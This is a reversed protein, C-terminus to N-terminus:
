QAYPTRTDPFVKAYQGVVLVPKLSEQVIEGIQASSLAHFREFAFQRRINLPAQGISRLEPETGLKLFREPHSSLYPFFGKDVIDEFIITAAPEPYGALVRLLTGHKERAVELERTVAIAEQHWYRELPIDGLVARCTAQAALHELTKRRLDDEHVTFAEDFTPYAAFDQALYPNVTCQDWKWQFTQRREADSRVKLVIGSETSYGSITLDRGSGSRAASQEYQTINEILPEVVVLPTEVVRGWIKTRYTQQGRRIGIEICPYEGRSTPCLGDQLFLDGLASRYQEHLLNMGREVEQPPLPETSTLIKNYYGYTKWKLDALDKRKEDQQREAAAATPVMPAVPRRQERLASAALVTAALGVVTGIM